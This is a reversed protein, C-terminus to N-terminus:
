YFVTMQLTSVIKIQHLLFSFFFIYLFVPVSLCNFLVPSTSHTPQSQVTSLFFGLSIHGYFSWGIWMRCAASFNFTKCKILMCCLVNIHTKQQQQQKNQQIFQIDLQVNFLIKVIPWLFFFCYYNCQFWFISNIKRM